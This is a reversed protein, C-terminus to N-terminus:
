IEPNMMTGIFVPLSSENEVIAYIFPRDLFVQNRIPASKINIQVDTTAGAKTGFVDVNIHTKHSIKEVYINNGELEVMQSFNAKDEHFCDELGIEELSRALEASFEVKFKPLSVLVEESSQNRILDMFSEGSLSDIYQDVSVGENPLIVMLSYKGSKYPKIFGQAKDDKIFTNETSNMYEVKKSSGDELKFEEPQIDGKEYPVKWQDEFYVANILHMVENEEIKDIIKEIKNNTNIKVWNNIEEVTAQDAFDVKYASASYYNANNQLFSKKVDIINNGYWISNAIKLDGSSVGTFSKALSYYYNNLEKIDLGRNSLVEEFQKLTNGSAGNATMGLALYLSTPSILSNEGKKYSSKFLDLSFDATSQIFDEKLAVTKVPEAKIGSMLDKALVTVAEKRSFVGSLFVLFALLVALAPVAALAWRKSRKRGKVHDSRRLREKSGESMDLKNLNTDVISKFDELKKM